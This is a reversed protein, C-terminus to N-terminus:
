GVLDGGDDMERLKALARRLLNKVTQSACARHDAIEAIRWEGLYRLRVVEQEAPTLEAIAQTLWATTKLRRYRRWAAEERGAGDSLSEVADLAVERRNLVKKRRDLAVYRITSLLTSTRREDDGRLRVEGTLIKFVADQIIDAADSLDTALHNRLLFDIRLSWRETVEEALWARADPKVGPPTRETM